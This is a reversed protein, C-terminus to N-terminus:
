IIIFKINSILTSNKNCFIVTTVSSKQTIFQIPSNNYLDFFWLFERSINSHPKKVELVNCIETLKFKKKIAARKTKYSTSNKNKSGKINLQDITVIFLTIKKIINKIINNVDISKSQSNTANSQDM